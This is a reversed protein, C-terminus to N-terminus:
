SVLQLNKFMDESEYCAIATEEGNLDPEKFIAFLKDQTDLKQQLRKLGWINKVAVFVLTENKWKEPFKIMYEALAHAGQVMRYTSDLDERVVIFMKM